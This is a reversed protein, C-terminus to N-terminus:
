PRASSREARTCIRSPRTLLLSSTMVETPGSVREPGPRGPRVQLLENLDEDKRKQAEELLMIRATQEEVKALQFSFFDSASDDTQCMQKCQKAIFVISICFVIQPQRGYMSVIKYLLM